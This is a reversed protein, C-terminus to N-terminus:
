YRLSIAMISKVVRPNYFPYSESTVCGRRFATDWRATTRYPLAKNGVAKVLVSHCERANRGQLVAINIYAHQELHTVDMRCLAQSLVSNRNDERNYCYLESGEVATDVHYLHWVLQHVTKNQPVMM